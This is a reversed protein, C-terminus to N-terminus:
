CSSSSSGHYDSETEESDASELEVVSEVVSEEVSEATSETTSEDSESSSEEESDEDNSDDSDGSTEDEVWEEEFSPSVFSSPTESPFFYMTHSRPLSSEAFSSDDSADYHAIPSSLKTQLVPVNYDDEDVNFIDYRLDPLPLTPKPQLELLASYVVESVAPIRTCCLAIIRSAFLVPVSTQADRIVVCAEILALKLLYIYRKLLPM